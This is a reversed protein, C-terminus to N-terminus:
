TLRKPSSELHSHPGPGVKVIIGELRKIEAEQAEQAKKADEERKAREEPTEEDGDEVDDDDNATGDNVDLDTQGQAYRKMDVIEGVYTPQYKLKVSGVPFPSNPVLSAKGEPVLTLERFMTQGVAEVGSLPPSLLNILVEGLHM